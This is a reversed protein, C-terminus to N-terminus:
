DAATGNRDDDSTQGEAGAEPPQSGGDDPLRSRVAEVAVGSWTSPRTLVALLLLLGNPADQAALWDLVAGAVETPV